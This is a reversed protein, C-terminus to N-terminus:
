RDINFHYQDNPFPPSLIVYQDTPHQIMLHTIHKKKKLIRRGGLDVRVSLSKGSVVSKRDLAAERPVDASSRGVRDHRAQHEVLNRHGLLLRPQRRHMGRLDSSCVDSSWDSIRLEYATKQKFFFFFVIRSCIIVLLMHM